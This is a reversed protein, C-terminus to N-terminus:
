GGTKIRKGFLEYVIVLGLLNLFLDDVDLSGSMTVYQVVEVLVLTVIWFRYFRFRNRMKPYILPFFLGYLAFVALNGFVNVWVRRFSIAGISYKYFYNNITAFLELNVNDKMRQVLVDFGGQTIWSLDITRNAYFLLYAIYVTYGFILLTILTLYRNKM